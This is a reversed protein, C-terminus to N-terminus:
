AAPAASSAPAPAPLAARLSLAFTAATVALVPTVRLPDAAVNLIAAAWLAFLIWRDRPTAARDALVAGPIVLLGADYFVTHPSALLV